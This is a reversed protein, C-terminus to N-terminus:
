TIHGDEIKAAHGYEMFDGKTSSAFPDEPDDSGDGDDSADEENLLDSLLSSLSLSLSTSPRPSRGSGDDKSRNVEVRAVKQM